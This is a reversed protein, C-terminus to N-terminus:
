DNELHISDRNWDVSTFLLVIAQDEPLGPEKSFLRFLFIRAQSIAADSVPPYRDDVLQDVYEHLEAGTRRLLAISM